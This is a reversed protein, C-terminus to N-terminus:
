ATGASTATWRSIVGPRHRHRRRCRPKCGSSTRPPPNRRRIAAETFAHVVDPVGAETLDALAAAPGSAFARRRSVLGILHCTGGTAKAQRRSRPPGAGPRDRRRRREGIRPLDQMVVRGAGINLHGVESNGMQGDPLGVDRGSTRLLAHPCDAVAQSPPRRRRRRRQRGSERALRLRGSHGADGPRRQQM